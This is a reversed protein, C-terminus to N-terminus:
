KKVIIRNKNTLGDHMTKITYKGVKLNKPLKFIAVGKKNTKIKYLKGKFKVKVLQTSSKKDKFNLVKVKFEASKKVKKFIDKTILTTKVTIKNKVKVNAFQTTIKYKGPKLNLKLTAYGKKDTKVKYTERNLTFKVYKGIALKGDAGYVRIKFHRSQKYYKKLNGSVIKTKPVIRVTIKGDKYVVKIFGDQNAKISVANPTDFVTFNSFSGNEYLLFSGNVVVTKGKTIFGKDYTVNLVIWNKLNDIKSIPANGLIDGWFNYDAVVDGYISNIGNSSILFSYSINGNKGLWILDKSFISGANFFKSFRITGNDGFWSVAAGSWAHNYYFQSELIRGFDGRWCIAGGSNPYGVNNNTFICKFVTGNTGNWVIAGGENTKAGVPRQIHIHVIIGNKDIYKKDEVFPDDEIGQGTNGTFNCNEMVGNAGNWYIAGGGVYKIYYKGYANGNIFNINRIVVDCATINFIRSLHNGNLTHGNGDITISKNILIGKNAGDVYQYDNTLTLIGGEPTNDILRALVDFSDAYNIEYRTDVALKNCYVISTNVCNNFLDKPSNNTFTSNCIIAKDSNLDIAGGFDGCSNNEFKSNLIKINRAFKVSIAGGSFGCRNNEFNCHNISINKGKLCIAGGDNNVTAIHIQHPDFGEGCTLSLDAGTVASNNKFNCDTIVGNTGGWYVAGGGSVASNNTFNCNALIGNDGWWSIVGGALGDAKSNVFNINKIVVNDAKVWFVRSVDPADITHNNGDITISKEIVIHKQSTNTLRYDKELILTNNEPALNIQSDLENFDTTNLEDASIIPACILILSVVALVFTLKKYM